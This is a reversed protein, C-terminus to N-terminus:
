GAARRETFARIMSLVDNENSLATLEKTSEKAFQNLKRLNVHCLVFIKRRTFKALNKDKKLFIDLRVFLTEYAMFLASCYLFPIYILTLLPPLVFARLNNSTAFSQYNSLIESLAFIILIIGITALVYDIVKKVQIYEKKTEAVAGMAVIFFLLPMLIIEVWLSFTYFNVLFTIALILKLNDLVIKKFYHEDQTAENANVLLVFAVCFVWIFTVKILSVDWLQIGYLILVVVGVYLLMALILTRIKKEFLIKLLGFILSRLNQQFLACVLFILVWVIIAKERNNFLDTYVNM